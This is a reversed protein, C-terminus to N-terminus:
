RRLVRLVQGLAAEKVGLLNAVVFYVV